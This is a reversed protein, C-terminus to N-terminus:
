ANKEDREGKEAGRAGRWGWGEREGSEERRMRNYRLLATTLVCSPRQVVTAAYLSGREGTRGVGGRGRREGGKGGGRREERREDGERRGGRGREEGEGEGGYPQLPALGDGLRLITTAGDDGCVSLLQSVSVGWQM